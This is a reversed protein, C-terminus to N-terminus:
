NLNCEPDQCTPGHLSQDQLWHWWRSIAEHLNVIQLASLDNAPAVPFYDTPPQLNPEIQIDVGTTIESITQALEEISVIERSGIEVVPNMNKSFSALLQGVLDTPYLYSRRTAPNGRIKIERGHLADSMFNGVAFHADLAIHPGAFAFLRASFGRIKGTTLYDSLEKEVQNKKIAYIKAPSPSTAFEQLAVSLPERLNAAGSSLNIVKPSNSQNSVQSFLNLSGKEITERLFDLNQSGHKPVSPTAGHIVHTFEVKPELNLNRIDQRIQNINNYTNTGIDNEAIGFRSVAHIQMELNLQTNAFDLAGILWKGVFGSAGTILINAHYFEDWKIWPNNVIELLDTTPLSSPLNV